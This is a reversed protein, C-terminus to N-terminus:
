KKEIYNRHFENVRELMEASKGGTLKAWDEWAPKMKERTEERLKPDMWKFRVGNVRMADKIAYADLENSAKRLLISQEACIKLFKNQLDKPLQSFADKNVSIWHLGMSFDTITVYKSVEYLGAAYAPYICTVFGDAMKRQLATYVEDWTINVPVGGFLKIMHAMPKSYIRIRQGKFSNFDEVFNSGAFMYGHYPFWAVPMQNYEELPTGLVYNYFDKYKEDKMMAEFEATSSYLFPLDQLGMQPRVSQTYINLSFGMQMINDNVAKMVDAVSYPHEGPQFVNIKIQGNTGKEINQFFEKVHPYGKAFALGICAKWKYVKANAEPMQTFTFLFLSVLSIM